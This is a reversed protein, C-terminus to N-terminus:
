RSFIMSKSKATKGWKGVYVEDIWANLVKDSGMEELVRFGNNLVHLTTRLTSKGDINGAIRPDHRDKITAWEKVSCMKLCDPVARVMFMVNGLSTVLVHKKFLDKDLQRGGSEHYAAIFNGIYEDIHSQFQDFDSCNFSWWMKHGLPGSGFGGWDIIGCDLKGAADRWFYANDANLNNHGLAVYDMDSHLWYQLEASYASWTMMTNMFKDAFAKSTVYAPFIVRATETAFKIAQNLRNELMKPDEGSSGSPNMGWVSPNSVDPPPRLSMKGM